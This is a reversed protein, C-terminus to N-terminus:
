SAHHGHESGNTTGTMRIMTICIASTTFAAMGTIITIMIGRKGIALIM